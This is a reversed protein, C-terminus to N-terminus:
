KEKCPFAQILADMAIRSASKSREEPHKEVYNGVIDVIQEVVVGNSIQACVLNANSGVDFIATTYGVLRSHILYDSNSEIGQDIKKSAKIWQNLDNGDSFNGVTETALTDFSLGLMGVLLLRKM